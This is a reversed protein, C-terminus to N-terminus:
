SIYILLCIFKVFEWFRNNNIVSSRSMNLCSFGHSCILEYQLRYNLRNRIFWSLCSSNEEELTRPCAAPSNLSRGDSSSCRRWYGAQWGPAPKCPSLTCRRAPWSHRGPSTGCPSSCSKIAFVRRLKKFSRKRSKDIETLGCKMFKSQWHHWQTAEDTCKDHMHERVPYRRPQRHRYTSHYFSKGNTFM